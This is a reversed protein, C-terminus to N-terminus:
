NAQAIAPPGVPHAKPDGLPHAVPYATVPATYYFFLPKKLCRPSNEDYRVFPKEQMREGPVFRHAEGQVLNQGILAVVAPDRLILFPSLLRVNEAYVLGDLNEAQAQAM